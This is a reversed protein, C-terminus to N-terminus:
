NSAPKRWKPSPRTSSTNTASSPWACKRFRAMSPSTPCASPPLPPWLALADPTQEKDNSLLNVQVITEAHYDDPFLPRLARDILRSILVEYDSPKAERKFFGGPFKGTSYYKERYDVSLPFFDTEPAVETASCVTALIVTDGCRLMVSGDAQKAYRGTNLTIEQGNPMKITQTFGQPGM